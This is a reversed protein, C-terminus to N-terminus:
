NVLKMLLLQLHEIFVIPSILIGFGVFLFSIPLLRLTTKVDVQEESFPGGYKGKGLNLQSPYDEEWYTLASRNRPHKNKRAYNFVKVILRIPNTIQPTTDLCHECFAITVIIIGILLIHVLLMTMTFYQSKLISSIESLFINVIEAVARCWFHWHILASLMEGSAGQTQDTLFPIVNGDFCAFGVLNFAISIGLIIM